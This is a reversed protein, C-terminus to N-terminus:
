PALPCPGSPCDILEIVFQGMLGSDFPDGIVYIGPERTNFGGCNSASCSVDRILFAVEVDPYLEIRFGLEDSFFGRPETSTRSPNMVREIFLVDNTKLTIKIGGPDHGSIRDGANYGWATLNGM